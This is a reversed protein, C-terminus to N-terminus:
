WLCNREVKRRKGEAVETKVYEEEEEERDPAEVGDWKTVSFDWSSSFLEASYPHWSV